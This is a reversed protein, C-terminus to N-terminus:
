EELRRQEHRTLHVHLVRAIKGVLTGGGRWGDFPESELEGERRGDIRLSVRGCAGNTADAIVQAHAHGPYFLAIRAQAGQFAPCAIEVPQAAPLSNLLAVVREIYAGRRVVDTTGHVPRGSEAHAPILDVALRAAGAPVVETPPRPTAWAAEGTAAVGTEKAGISETVVYVSRDLLEEGLDPFSLTLDESFDGPAFASGKETVSSGAPRHQEIYRLVAERSEEVTWWREAEVLNADAPAMADEPQLYEGSGPPPSTFPKAGAPLSLEGVLDEADTVAHQRLEATTPAAGAAPSVVCAAAIITLTSIAVSRPRVLLRRSGM